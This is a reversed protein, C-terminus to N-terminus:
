NYFFFVLKHSFGSNFFFESPLIIGPDILISEGDSTDVNVDSSLWNM